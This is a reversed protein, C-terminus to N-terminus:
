GDAQRNTEEGNNKILKIGVRKNTDLERLEGSKYQVVGNSEGITTIRSYYKKNSTCFFLLITVWLYILIKM